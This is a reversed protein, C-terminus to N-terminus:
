ISNLYNDVKELSTARIIKKQINREIFKEKELNNIIRQLTRVNVHISYSIDQTSIGEFSYDNEALCKLFYDKTPLVLREASKKQYEYMRKTVMQSIKIWLEFNEKPEIYLLKKLPITLVEAKETFMIELEYDTEDVIESLGIWLEGSGPYIYDAEDSIFQRIHYKGSLFILVKEENPKFYLIDKKYYTEISCSELLEKKTSSDKINQFYKFLELKILKEKLKAEM